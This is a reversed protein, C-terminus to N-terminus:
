TTKFKKLKLRRKLFYQNIVGMSIWLLFFISSFDIPAMLWRQKKHEVSTIIVLFFM